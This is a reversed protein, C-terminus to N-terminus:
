WSPASRDRFTCTVGSLIAFILTSTWLGTEELKLLMEVVPELFTQMPPKETSFWLGALIMNKPQRRFYSILITLLMCM